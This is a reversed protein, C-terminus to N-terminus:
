WNFRLSTAAAARFGNAAQGIRESTRKGYTRHLSSKRGIAFRGKDRFGTFRRTEFNITGQTIWDLHYIPM